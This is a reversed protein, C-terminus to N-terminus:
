CDDANKPLCSQVGRRACRLYSVQRRESKYIQERTENSPLVLTPPAKGAMLLMPVLVIAAFVLLIAWFVFSLVFRILTRVLTLLGNANRSPGNM